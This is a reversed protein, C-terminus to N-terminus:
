LIVYLNCIDTIEAYLDLVKKICKYIKDKNRETEGALSPAHYMIRGIINSNVFAARAKMTMFKKSKSAIHLMHTIQSVIANVQADGSGRENIIFGLVKIQSQPKISYDKEEDKIELTKYIQKHKPQSTIFIMTKDENIKLKQINYYEKLIEIFIDVYKQADEAKDFIITNNSDDVFNYTNHKVESEIDNTLGTLIKLLDKNKMIEALVPVENTYLTYLTTSLKSGQVVSCEPLEIPDSRKTDVEIFQSRNTLYSTFLDLERGVIGYYKMKRLLISHDVTDYAASLDTSLLMCTKDNEYGKALDWEILSKVTSTSKNRVGGHHNKHIIKNSQLYKVLERKIYEELVKEASHLNSIPRYSDPELKDKKSKLIPVIRAIKLADPFKGTRITANIAHALLIANLDLSMKLVKSSIRDYGVTNSSKMQRIITKTEELKIEKLTFKSAPREILQSLLYIPDIHPKTFNSRIFKIKSDFHSALAKAIKIPSTVVNGNVLLKSPTQIVNSNAMDKIFNWIGRQNRMKLEYYTRKTIEILKLTANRCVRYLRWEEIDGSTIAVELQKNTENMQARVDENIYPIHNKTCQVVKTVALTNVIKNMERIYTEWIKNPNMMSLISMLAESELMAETLNIPNMGNWNTKFIYKPTDVIEHVHFLTTVMRHDSILTKKTIVNDFHNPSSTLLHDILSPNQGSQYRTYEKNIIALSNECIFDQYKPLLVKLDERGLTDRNVSMDINMDGAILLTQTLGKVAKVQALISDLRAVQQHTSGSDHFGAQAPLRWQRYVGCLYLWKSNNFRVRIWITCVNKKELHALREYIVTNKKILVTVRSKEHNDEFKNEVEYKPFLDALDDNPKVNSETLVCITPAEDQLHMKIVDKHTCVDSRDKNWTMVKIFKKDKPKFNRNGNLAHAIKNKLRQKVKDHCNEIISLCIISNAHNITQKDPEDAMDPKVQDHLNDNALIQIAYFFLLFKVFIQNFKYKANINIINKASKFM